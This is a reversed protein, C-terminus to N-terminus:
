GGKQRLVELAKETFDGFKKADDGEAYAKMQTFKLYILKMIQVLANPM